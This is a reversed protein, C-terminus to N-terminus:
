YLLAIKEDLLTKEQHEDFVIISDNLIEHKQSKSEKRRYSIATNLAVRYIWTSLKVGNDFKQLSRWIQILIEQELDKRDEHETCYSYCIKFILNQHDKVISIFERKDM